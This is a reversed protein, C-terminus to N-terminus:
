AQQLNKISVNAYAGLNKVKKNKGAELIAHIAALSHKVVAKTALPKRLGLDCLTDVLYSEDNNLKTATSTKNSFDDGGEHDKVEKNLAEKTLPFLPASCGKTRKAQLPKNTPQKKRALEVRPPPTTGGERFQPEVGSKKGVPQEGDTKIKKQPQVLYRTRGITVRELENHSEFYEFAERIYRESYGTREALQFNKLYCERGKNWFQFMHSYVDMYGLTMGPLKRIYSPVIYFTEEYSSRM